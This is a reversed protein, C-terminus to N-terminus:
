TNSFTESRPSDRFFFGLFFFSFFFFFFFIIIFPGHTWEAPPKNDTHMYIPPFITPYNDLTSYIHFSFFFGGGCAGNMDQSFPFFFPLHRSAWLRMCCNPCPPPGDKAACGMWHCCQCSLDTAHEPRIM